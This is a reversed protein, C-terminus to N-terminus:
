GKENPEPAVTLEAPEVDLWEEDGFQVSCQKGTDSARVATVADGNLAVFKTGSNFAAIKEAVAKATRPKRPETAAAKKEVVTLPPLGKTARGLAAGLRSIAWVLAYCCWIFHYTYDRLNAEWFDSLREGDHEFNVAAQMAFFEGDDACRLVRDNAAQRLDATAEMSDLWHAVQERFKEPSYQDAAGGTRLDAADLKEAWYQLNIHLGDDKYDSRFFTFMDEVRSFVFTGMDGAFCLSGPWTIIDFYQNNTAPHKFRLHRHLGEDLLVTMKHSAVNKLFEQETPTHRPRKM